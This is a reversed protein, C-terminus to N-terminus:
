REELVRELLRAYDRYAQLLTRQFMRRKADVRSWLRSREEQLESLAHVDPWMGSSPAAPDVPSAREKTNWYPLPFILGGEVGGFPFSGAAAELFDIRGRAENITRTDVRPM